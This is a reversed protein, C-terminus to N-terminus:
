GAPNCDSRLWTRTLGLTKVNGIGGVRVARDNRLADRLVVRSTASPLAAADWGVHGSSHGSIARGPVRLVELPYVCPWARVGGAREASPDAVRHLEWRAPGRKGVPGAAHLMGLSRRLRRVARWPSKGGGRGYHNVAPNETMRRRRPLHTNYARWLDILDHWRAAQYDSAVWQRARLRLGARVSRAECPPQHNNLGLRCHPQHSGRTWREPPRQESPRLSAPSVGPLTSPLGCRELRLRCGNM